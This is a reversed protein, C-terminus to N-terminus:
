DLVLAAASAVALGLFHRRTTNLRADDRIAKPTDTDRTTNM